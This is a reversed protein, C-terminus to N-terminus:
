ALRVRLTKLSRMGMRKSWDANELAFAPKLNPWRTFLRELVIETELRALKLGLCVHPGAGFTLHYNSPRDIQFKTPDAFRDPDYNAAALIPMMVEGRKLSQGHFVTDHTVFRPKAFQAPSNYRLMETVAPEVQSWDSNLQELVAPMTLLTWISTSILHVTTEHGALLLIMVMALLEDDSLKDGSQEAEVLASVLGPRPSNRVERFQQRMYKITKRIGPVLKPLGWLSQINAFSSFWKKFKPRDESPLGLLECISAMPVPRALTKVLDVDKGNSLSEAFSDLQADIYQTLTPRMEEINQRHFAQDVLSRLRRHDPEDLNIVNQILSGLGLPKLLRVIMFNRTGANEPERCFLEHDKLVDQVADYTTVLWAKGLMSLRVPVVPGMERLRGFAAFPTVRYEMGTLSIKQRAQKHM